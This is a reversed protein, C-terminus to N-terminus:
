FESFRETVGQTYNYQMLTLQICFHYENSIDTAGKGKTIEANQGM